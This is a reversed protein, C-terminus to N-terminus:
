GRAPWTSSAFAPKQLSVRMVKNTLIRGDGSLAIWPPDDQGLITIWEDDPTRKHFRSDEDHHRVTHDIEYANIMRAVRIPMCRDFFFNM